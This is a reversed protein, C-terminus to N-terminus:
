LSVRITKVGEGLIKRLKKEKEEDSVVFVVEYGREANKEFNHRVQEPQNNLTEIEYAVPAEWEYPDRIAKTVGKSTEADEVPKFVLMDPKEEFSDGTDVSVWYGAEWFQKILKRAIANHEPGGARRSIVSETAGFFREVTHPALQYYVADLSRSASVLASDLLHNLASLTVSEDWAYRKFMENKLSEYSVMPGRLYLFVIVAWQSPTMEPYSDEAASYVPTRDEELRVDMRIEAEAKREDGEEAKPVAFYYTRNVLKVIAAYNPLATLVSELDRNGFAKSIEGADEPGVRFSFILRSNGEMSRLLREPIQSLNQNATMLFLGFKRAESLITELTELSAANQFEDIVLYVPFLTRGSADFAKKRKEVAFFVNLIVASTIMKRFDEPLVNRALRFAHVGPESVMSFFDVTTKRTCFTRSTYSGAPMVFNSIRNMVATFAAPDLEAMAEATKRIIEDNGKILRKVRSPNRLMESLLFYLDLFTPTDSVSYLFYLLGRFIWLLRPARYQEVGFLDKMTDVLEGVRRQVLVNREKDDSYYGIDLPNLAFPSLVPDYVRASPVTAKLQLSADGHPDVFIISSASKSIRQMLYLLLNTKGSGTAGVIMTHGMLDEDSLRVM